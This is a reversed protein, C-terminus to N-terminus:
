EIEYLKVLEELIEDLTIKDQINQLQYSAKEDKGSEINETAHKAHIQRDKLAKKVIFITEDRQKALKKYSSEM